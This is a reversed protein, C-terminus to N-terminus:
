ASSSSRRQPLEDCKDIVLSSAPHLREPFVVLNKENKLLASPVILGELGHAQALRGIAQPLAEGNERQVTEWDEALMRKASIGLLRRLSGDSLDLVLSLQVRIAVMVLPM